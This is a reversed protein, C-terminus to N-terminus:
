EATKKVAVLIWTKTKSYPRSEQVQVTDGINATNNPDHAHVTTTKKIYKGYLPHKLTRVHKVVITQEMKNSVVVGTLTRIIKKPEVASM